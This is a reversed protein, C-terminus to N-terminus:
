TWTSIRKGSRTWSWGCCDRRGLLRQSYAPQGRHHLRAEPDRDPPGTRHGASRDGGAKRAALLRGHGAIVGGKGDVLVPNTWGFEVMSAALQAVQADSHMRPNRAYPLLAEIPRLEVNLDNLDLM